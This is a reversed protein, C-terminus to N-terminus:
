HLVGQVSAPPAGPHKAGESMHMVMKVRCIADFMGVAVSFAVYDAEGIAEVVKAADEDSIATHAYPIQEAYSLLARERDDFLDSNRWHSLAEFKEDSFGCNTQRLALEANCGHIQAIRLRAMELLAPEILAEDWLTGYFAKFQEMLEPRWGFYAELPSSAPSSQELWSM